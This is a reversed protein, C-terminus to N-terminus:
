IFAITRTYANSARGVSGLAGSRQAARPGLMFGSGRPSCGPLPLGDGGVVWWGGLVVRRGADWHFLISAGVVSFSRVKAQKESKAACKKKQGNRRARFYFTFTAGGVVWKKKAMSKAQDALPHHPPPAPPPPTPPESLGPTQRPM